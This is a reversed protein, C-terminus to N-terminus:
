STITNEIQQSLQSVRLRLSRRAQDRLRNLPVTTSNTSAMECSSFRDKKTMGLTYTSTRGQPQRSSMTSHDANALQVQQFVRKRIDTTRVRRRELQWNHCWSVSTSPCIKNGNQRRNVPLIPRQKTRLRQLDQMIYVATYCVRSHRADKAKGATDSIYKRKFTESGSTDAKGYGRHL